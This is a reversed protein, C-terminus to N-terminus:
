LKSSPKGEIAEVQRLFHLGLDNHLYTIGMHDIATTRQELTISSEKNAWTATVKEFVGGLKNQVKDNKLKSPKGFKGTYADWFQDWYRMNSRISIRFLRLTGDTPHPIFEYVQFVGIGAVDLPLEDRSGQQALSQIMHPRFHNCRVVGVKAIAGYVLLESGGGVKDAGPDGTCLVDVSAYKAADPHPMARFEDLTMGLRFGRLDYPAAQATGALLLATLAAFITKMM